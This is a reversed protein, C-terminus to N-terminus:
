FEVAKLKTVIEKLSRNEDELKKIYEDVFLEIKVSERFEIDCTANSRTIIWGNSKVVLIKKEILEKLQSLIQSDHEEIISKVLKQFEHSASHPIYYLNSM